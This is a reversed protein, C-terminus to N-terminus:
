LVASHHPTKLFFGNLPRPSSTGGTPAVERIYLTHFYNGPRGGFAPNPIPPGAGAVQFDYVFNNYILATAAVTYIGVAGTGAGTRINHIKNGYHFVTDGAVQSSVYLGYIDTAATSWGPQIDCDHVRGGRQYETRIGYKGELIACNKVENGVDVASTLGSLYIGYGAGSITLNDFTNYDDNGTSTSSVHVGFTTTSAVNSGIITANKVANYDANGFIQVGRACAGTATINIGDLTVYDAGNLRVVSLGSAWTLTVVDGSHKQFTITNTESAGTIPGMHLSDVYTGNYVDFIVAGDMERLTLDDVASSFNPYHNSGGGIDYTGHMPQGVIRVAFQASDNSLDADGTLFSQAELTGLQPASPTTWDFEITDVEDVALSVLITDQPTDNYFLIVPVDTQAASGRNAVRARPHKLTLEANLYITNLIETVAYDAPPALFTYEDSGIDPNGASRPDQDIDDDIGDIHLGINSVLNYTSDIHLNSASYYGPNGEVGHDEYATAAQLAALNAYNAGSTRYVRYNANSGANYYANYDLIAPVYSSGSYYMDALASTEASYFINNRINMTASSSGNYIARLSGTSAVDNIYVSNFSFNSTGAGSAYLGFCPNASGITQVDYFWNNYINVVTGTGGSARISAPSGSAILGHFKNRYIYFTNGSTSAAIDIGYTSSGGAANCQIDNDYIRIDPTNNTVVAQWVNDFTCNRIVNRAHQNTSSGTINFGNKHRNFLINDFVNDECPTGWMYVAHKVSSGTFGSGTWTANRFINNTSGAKIVLNKYTGDDDSGELLVDIGDFIFYSATAMQIVGEQADTGWTVRLRATGSADVFKITDNPGAGNVAALLRVQEDYDGGYVNFTVPGSIGRGYLAGVAVTFNPFEPSAGGIDYSGSMPSTGTVAFM